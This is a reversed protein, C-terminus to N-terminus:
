PIYSYKLCFTFIGILPEVIVDITEEILKPFMGDLGPSKFLGFINIVWNLSNKQIEFSFTM